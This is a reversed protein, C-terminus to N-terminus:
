RPFYKAYVDFFETTTVDEDHLLTIEEWLKTNLQRALTEVYADYEQGFIERRKEEIIVLKNRDTQERDFTSICKMIHYGKETEIVQSIEGTELSFAEEEIAADAEGKRFSYTISSDESFRSALEVFDAEGEVAKRRIECAKEYVSQKVKDSYAVRNGANDITDTRLLIHQVMITRAEDDSIEPKVDQIIFQYVKDALAYERYLQEILEASVGMMEKETDNLSLFYEAAAREVRQNEEEELTVGRDQALLYMTKIQAMKALVTEKVNEELTIGNRSVNWVDPGYVSEYQNGTNTLYVMIEPVTCVGNGVRFVDEKGFGTTFIVKTNNGEDGCATLLVASLVCVAAGTRGLRLLTHGASADRLMMAIKRAFRKCVGLPLKRRM